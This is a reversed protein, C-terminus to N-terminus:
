HLLLGHALEHAINSHQRGLAHSDNHVIERRRGRFVTVASFTGQEAGSFLRVSEPAIAAFSSLPHVPIDLYAALEHPALPAFPTLGLEGRVEAAIANAESKFGRRFSM